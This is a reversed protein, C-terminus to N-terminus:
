GSELQVVEGKESSRYIALILEVARRAERGSLKPERDERIADIVDQIQKAHAQIGRELGARPDASATTALPADNRELPEGEVEWLRLEDAEVLVNGRTGHVEFRAPHGKYTCTTGQIVGQAGNEFLIVASACDEVEIHDHALTAVFGAVKKAKGMIFLLLDIYHISQNMLAGGGDLAKTGHWGDSYYEDSRFWPVFANAYLPKGLRGSQLAERIRQYIPYARLQHTAAIKVHNREGAELLQDIAELTIDIPKTVIVHKGANAADIGIKAHLGSPVIINVIDIDARNLMELHDVYYECDNEGAKMAAAEENKDCVAVLRTEPLSKIAALHVDSIVGCGIVGFGFIRKGDTM